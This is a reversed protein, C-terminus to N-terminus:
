HSLNNFNDGLRSKLDKGFLILRVLAVCQAATLCYLPTFFFFYFLTCHTDINPSLSVASYLETNTLKGDLSSSKPGSEM